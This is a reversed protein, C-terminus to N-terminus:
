FINDVPNGKKHATRIDSDDIKLYRSLISIDSHGMLRSLTHIDVGSRLMALAFGRRFSHLSPEEVGAETSRRSIIQRLADYTLREGSKTLFLAPNNDKRLILYKKIMSKTKKGIFTLRDKRGKGLHVYVTGIQDVDNRNLHCLESARLGTDLLTLIIAADRCGFATSKNCTSLLARAVEISVPPLVENNLRPAKVKNIPNPWGEVENEYWKLFTRLSRFHAHLGGKNHGKEELTIMYSRILNADIEKISHVLQSDCYDIFHQLKQSYFILTGAACGSSRRDMVFLEVLRPIYFDIDLDTKLPTGQVHTKFSM